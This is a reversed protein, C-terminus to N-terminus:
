GAGFIFHGSEELYKVIDRVSWNRLEKESFEPLFKHAEKAIGVMDYLIYDAM